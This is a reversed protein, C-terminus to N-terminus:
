SNSGRVVRIQNSVEAVGFCDAAIDEIQHKSQRNKVTGTLNVHADKVNVSVDEVDLRHRSLRECVEDEIREDSKQYGKPMVFPRDDYSSSSERSQSDPWNSAGRSPGYPRGRWAPPYDANLHDWENAHRYPSGGASHEDWPQGWRDQNRRQWQNHAGPDYGGRLGEWGTRTGPYDWERVHPPSAYGRRGQGEFDVDREAPSAGRERKDKAM